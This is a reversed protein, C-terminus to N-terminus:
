RETQDNSISIPGCDKPASLMESLERREMETFQVHLTSLTEGDMQLM